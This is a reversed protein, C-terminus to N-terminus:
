PAWSPASLGLEEAERPHTTVWDHCPRCLCLLNAPDLISGGRARSKVEHVDVAAAGRCVVQAQCTPYKALLEAVVDRRGGPRAYLDQRKASRPNVRKGRALGKGQQLGKGATLGARSELPTKRNLPGGRKM